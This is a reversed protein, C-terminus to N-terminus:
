RATCSSCTLKASGRCEQSFNLQEIPPDIAEPDSSDVFLLFQRVGELVYSHDEKEEDNRIGEFCRRAFSLSRSAQSSLHRWMWVKCPKNEATDVGIKAM